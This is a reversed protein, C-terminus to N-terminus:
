RLLPWVEVSVEITQDMGGLTIGKLPTVDGYDRGWALTIHSDSPLVNNTPDFHAYGMGPIFVSVWAHSAEAGQVLAGSRLYGSVYRAALGLSRLCGIMVHAFDQCVGQRRALVEALPTEISTSRPAYRFEGHIRRMLELCADFLPRGPQFTPAAYAALALSAAVFPSDCAFESAELSPSDPCAALMEAVQEWAPSLDHFAPRADIDVRSNATVTLLTHPEFVSFTTVANGFYDAHTEIAAPEPVVTIAAKLVQQFPLRRPTLRAVSMCQSVPQQYRYRTVHTATYLM